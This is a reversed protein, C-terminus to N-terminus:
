NTATGNRLEVTQTYMRYVHEGAYASTPSAVPLNTGDVDGIHNCSKTGEFLDPTKDLVVGQVEKTSKALLTISVEVIKSGQPLTGL